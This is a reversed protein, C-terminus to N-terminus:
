VHDPINMNLLPSPLDHDDFLDTVPLLSRHIVEESMYAFDDNGQPGMENYATFDTQLIGRRYLERTRRAKHLMRCCRNELHPQYWPNGIEHVNREDSVGQEESHQQKELMKDTLYALKPCRKDQHLVDDDDNSPQRNFHCFMLSDRAIQNFLRTLDPYQVQALHLGQPPATQFSFSSRDRLLVAESAANTSLRSTGVAVLFGALNRVMNYLFSPGQVVIDVYQYGLHDKQSTSLIDEPNDQSMPDSTAPHVRIDINELLRHASKSSCGSAQFTEFDHYGELNKAVTRMKDIDLSDPVVWARDEDFVSRFGKDLKHTRDPCIVRRFLFKELRM